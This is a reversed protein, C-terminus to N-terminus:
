KQKQQYREACKQCCFFYERGDIVRRYASLECVKEPLKVRCFECKVFDPKV